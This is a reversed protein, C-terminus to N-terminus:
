IIAKDYQCVHTIYDALILTYKRLGLTNGIYQKKEQSSMVSSMETGGWPIDDNHLM